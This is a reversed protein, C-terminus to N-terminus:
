SYAIMVEERREKFMIDLIEMGWVKNMEATSLAYRTIRANTGGHKLVLSMMDRGCLTNAAAAEIARSTINGRTRHRMIEGVWEVSEVKITQDLTRINEAIIFNNMEPITYCYDHLNFIFVMTDHVVQALSKTYDARLGSDEPCDLCMGLLAYIKDCPDGAESARFMFLLARLERKASWPSEDRPWGPMINLVAQCHPEPRIELLLPAIAFVRASVSKAGSCVTARSANAVEQLVWVRNFWPRELLSTLGKLQRNALDWHQSKMGFQLSVWTDMWRKDKLGWDRRSEKELQKLSDLLVDTDNTAPGLWILTRDAQSYINRMQNVQHGREEVNSQDICIADVWLIRDEDRYRLHQLALYLNETVDHNEAGIQVSAAKEAGGWTYSLAEYPITDTDDGDHWAQFLECEILPDEGKLLRLLRIGPREFDFPTYKFTSMTQVVRQFALM